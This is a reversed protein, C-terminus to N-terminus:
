TCNKDTLEKKKSVKESSDENEKKADFEELLIDISMDEELARLRDKELCDVIDNRQGVVTVLRSILIDEYKKDASSKLVEPKAM